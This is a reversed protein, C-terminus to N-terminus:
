DEDVLWDHFACAMYGADAALLEARLDSHAAWGLLGRLAYAGCVDRIAIRYAALDFIAEMTRADRAGGTLEATAIVVTEGDARAEAHELIASLTVVVDDAGTAGVLLPVIRARPAAVQLLPLQAELSTQRCHLEGDVQVHGDHELMAIVGPDVEVPGLPTEWVPACSIYCGAAISDHMPGLLVVRSVEDAHARLRAYVRASLEGTVHLGSHPALYARALREGARVRVGDLLDVVASRL